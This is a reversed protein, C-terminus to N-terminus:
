RPTEATPKFAPGHGPVILAPGLDLVRKRGAHFDDNSLAVPDDEPPAVPTWWLHTLVVLGDATNVLVTIDSQTHGPTQILKVGPAVEVGEAMRVHWKDNQYIGWVDHTQANEFLAVNLTHDPHHHSIIVDTIESPTCGHQALADIIASRSPAMGPDHIIKRDGSRIFSVTAAVDMTVGLGPFPWPGYGALLVAWEEVVGTPLDTVAM